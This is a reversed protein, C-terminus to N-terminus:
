AARRAGVLRWVGLLAVVGLGIMGALVAPRPGFTLDLNAAAVRAAPLNTALAYWLYEVLAAGLMAAVSLGVLAALHGQWRAPLARWGLLWLFLASLLVAQSVDSKAQIFAHLLALVAIPFVLRHLRKWGRGLRRMWGDTSTWGLVALGCLAAFGILLYTRKAIESVVRALVVDQEVVYLGLHLVAWALAGLGLMRRVQFLRPWALIRGLPTVVLTLLLFRIAWRGTEHMAEEIPEPGLTGTAWPWLLPLLPLCLGALVVARLASFRGQRDQWPLALTVGM